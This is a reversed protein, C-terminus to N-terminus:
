GVLPEVGVLEMFSCHRGIEIQLYRLKDILEYTKNHGIELLRLILYGILVAYIQLRVGNENKTIIRDLKLHMKLAKWLLEIRWRLRYASCIEEDTMSTVNTALRYETNEEENFFQIVRIDPNDPQLKMNNRIRVIFLTNRKCMEDMLKWSAFGRDKAQTGFANIGVANEPITGIVLHGIKHDNTKGFIISEDGINGENIDLGLTLKVQKYHWFLKSTLTIITSDLPFLHKFEGQHHKLRKQLERLIVQFPETSRHKCAKSFTSIDVKFNLHNLLFFLGRMTAVRADLVFHIWILVFLRTDLVPYDNKPLLNLLPKILGQIQRRL